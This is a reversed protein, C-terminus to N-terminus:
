AITIYYNGDEGQFIEVASGDLTMYGALASAEELNTDIKWTGCYLKVSDSTLDCAVTFGGESQTFTLYELGAPKEGFTITEIEAFM